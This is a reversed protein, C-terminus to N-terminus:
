AEVPKRWDARLHKAHNEQDLAKRARETSYGLDFAIRLNEDYIGADFIAWNLAMAVDSAERLSLQRGNIM